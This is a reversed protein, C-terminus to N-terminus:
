RPPAPQAPPPAVSKMWSLIAQVKALIPAVENHKAHEEIEYLSVVAWHPLPEAPATVKEVRPEVRTPPPSATPAPGSGITPGSPGDPSPASSPPPAAVVAPPGVQEMTDLLQRVLLTMPAEQAVQRLSALTKQFQLVEASASPSALSEPAQQIVSIATRLRLTKEDKPARLADTSLRAFKELFLSYAGEECARQRAGFIAFVEVDLKLQLDAPKTEQEIIRFDRGALTTFAQEYLPKCRQAHAPAVAALCLPATAALIRLIKYVSRM